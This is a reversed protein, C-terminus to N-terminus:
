ENEEREMFHVYVAGPQSFTRVFQWERWRLVAEYRQDPTDIPLYIM